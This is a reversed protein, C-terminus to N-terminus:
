LVANLRLGGPGEGVVGQGHPHADGRASPRRAAQAPLPEALVAEGDPFCVLPHGPAITVRVRTGPPYTATHKQLSHLTAGSPLTVRYLNLAGQFLRATVIGPGPGEAIEVDDARVLLEVRTGSALPARFPLLGVETALGAEEVTAALFDARGLFGAVFRTRPLHFIAEPADVQAIRGGHMVAVQDGMFLAEEQDHTVFVATMRTQRLIARVEERLQVRLDADLNSFPEDLLLALPQPALARALAVRQQEGGSLEFAMREELGALGVLDLLDRVRRARDGSRLGYAVNEAVTLHPFLAYDQFVFGVRRREPPVFRGPGTVVEGGVEVVGGDPRELGAILRLVTTKGCGSPGLLALIRGQPVALDLGRVVPLRGFAKSVARCRIAVEEV